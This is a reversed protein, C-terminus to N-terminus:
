KWAPAMGNLISRMNIASKLRVYRDEEIDMLEVLTQVLSQSHVLIDYYEEVRDYFKNMREDTMNYVECEREGLGEDTALLDYVVNVVDKRHSDYANEWISSNTLITLDKM